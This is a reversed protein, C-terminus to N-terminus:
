GNSLILFDNRDGQQIQHVCYDLDELNYKLPLESYINTSCKHRQVIYKCLCFLTPVVFIRQFYVNIPKMKIFLITKHVGCPVSGHLWVVSIDQKKYYRV